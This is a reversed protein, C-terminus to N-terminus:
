NSELTKREDEILCQDCVFGEDFFMGGESDILRDEEDYSRWAYVPKDCTMCKEPTGTSWGNEEVRM